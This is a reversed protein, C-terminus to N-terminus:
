TSSVCGSVRLVIDWWTDGRTCARSPQDRAVWGGLAVDIRRHWAAKPMVVVQILRCWRGSRFFFVGVVVWAALFRVGRYIDGLVSLTGRATRSYRRTCNAIRTRRHLPPIQWGRRGKGKQPGKLPTTTVWVAGQNPCRLYMAVHEALDRVPSARRSLSGSPNPPCPSVPCPM